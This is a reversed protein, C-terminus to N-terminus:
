WKNTSRSSSESHARFQAFICYCIRRTYIRPVEEGMQYYEYELIVEEGMQYYELVKKDSCVNGMLSLM